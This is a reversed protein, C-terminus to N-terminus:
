KTLIELAKKHREAVLRWEEKLRFLNFNYCEDTTYYRFFDKRDLSMRIPSNSSGMMPATIVVISRGREDLSSVSASVSGVTMFDNYLRVLIENIEKM